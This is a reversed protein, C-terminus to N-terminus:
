GGHLRLEDQQHLRGQDGRLAPPRNGDRRPPVSIGGLDARIRLGYEDAELELTGNSKRAFVRGAHDYQMIVDDMNADNFADPSVQERLTWGSEQYLTYPRNFTTAYGEVIYSGADCPDAARMEMSRYSRGERLKDEITKNM